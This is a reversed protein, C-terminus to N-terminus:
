RKVYQSSSKYMVEQGKGCWLDHSSHWNCLACSLMRLDIEKLKTHISKFNQLYGGTGQRMIFWPKSRLQLTHLQAHAARDEKSKCTDVQFKTSLRRVWAVNYIMDQIEVELHAVASRLHIKKLKAHISKSNQLYDESGQGKGDHSPDWSCPTCSRMLPDINKLKALISKCNQLYGGSGQQMKFWPKVCTHM